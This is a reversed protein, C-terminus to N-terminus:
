LNLYLKQLLLILVTLFTGRLVYCISNKFSPQRTRNKSTADSVYYVESSLIVSIFVILAISLVKLFLDSFLSEPRFILGCYTSNVILFIFSASKGFVTLGLIVVFIAVTIYFSEHLLFINSIFLSIGSNVDCIAHSLFYFFCATLINCFYIRKRLSFVTQLNILFRSNYKVEVQSSQPSDLVTLAFSNDYEKM